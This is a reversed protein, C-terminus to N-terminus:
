DLIELYKKSIIQWDFKEKIFKISQEEIFSKLEVNKLIYIIKDVLEKSNKQQIIFGTENDQIIDKFAELNTAVVVTGSSMSEMLTVPLGERDGGETQISPAIFIDATAFYKPLINNPLGGTFKVADQLGLKNTMTELETKLEGDGIILLKTKPFKKIVDPMAQILYGIGKKEALRGVFLLFEGKINYKRKLNLDKKNPSFLKSDVGMSIVKINLNQDIKNLIENKIATSVVTIKDSKRLAFRKITTFLKGQLAFIDGGHTTIVLPIGSMKKLLAAIFGQPIIWHAHIKYPKIQKILKRLAFYQALLFFPIQIYFWRNKKLAPLIGGPGTLKEYREIFYKFRYIEMGEMMEYRKAGPYHPSLIYVDFNEVLRKSLEYVFPPKIDNKWRPFTSALVILKKKTM